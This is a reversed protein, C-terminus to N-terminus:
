FIFNDASVPIREFYFHGGGRHFARGVFHAKFKQSFTQRGRIESELDDAILIWLAFFLV